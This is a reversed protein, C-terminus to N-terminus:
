RWKKFRPYGEAVLFALDLLIIAGVIFLDLYYSQQVWLAGSVYL